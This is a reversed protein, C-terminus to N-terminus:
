VYDHSNFKKRTFIRHQPYYKENTEEILNGEKIFEKKDHQSLTGYFILRNEPNYVKYVSRKAFPEYNRPKM